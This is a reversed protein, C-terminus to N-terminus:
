LPLAGTAEARSAIDGYITNAVSLIRTFHTKAYVVVNPNNKYKRARREARPDDPLPIVIRTSPTAETEDIEILRRSALILEHTLTNRYNSFMAWWAPSVLRTLIPDGPRNQNLRRHATQYYTNRPLPEGFLTLVIRALIDLASASNYFFGDIYMNVEFMFDGTTVAAEQIDTSTLKDTLAELNFQAARLKHLMAPHYRHFNSFAEDTIKETDNLSSIIRELRGRNAFHHYPRFSM